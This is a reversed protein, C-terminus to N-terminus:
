AGEVMMTALEELFLAKLEEVFLASLQAGIDAQPAQQGYARADEEQELRSLFAPYAEALAAMKEAYIGSGAESPKYQGMTQFLSRYQRSFEEYGIDAQAKRAQEEADLEAALRRARDLSTEPAAIPPFPLAATPGEVRRREAEQAQAAEIAEPGAQEIVADNQVVVLRGDGHVILHPIMLSGRVLAPVYVGFVMGGWASPAAGPGPVQAARPQGDALSRDRAQIIRPLAHRLSREINTGPEPERDRSRAPTGLPRPYKKRHEEQARLEQHIGQWIEAAERKTERPLDEPAPGVQTREYKRLINRAEEWERATLGISDARHYLAHGTSTDGATFGMQNRKKARDQDALVLQELAAVTWLQIPLLPPTRPEEREQEETVGILKDRLIDWQGPTLGPREGRKVEALERIIPELQPSEGSPGPFTGATADVKGTIWREAQDKPGRRPAEVFRPPTFAPATYVPLSPMPLVAPAPEVVLPAATLVPEFGTRSSGTVVTSIMKQKHDLIELVRNDLPHMAIMRHIVNPGEKTFPVVSGPNLIMRSEAQANNSPNWELDVFIADTARSLTLAVGGAKTSIGVGKLKGAQFAEVTRQSAEPSEGGLILAWGPRKGIAELPTLHSSFVLIPNEEEEFGAVLDILAPIKSAALLARARSMEEFVPLGKALVEASATKIDIGRERLIKATIADLEALADGTIEIPIDKYLMRPADAGWVDKRERRLSVKQMAKAAAPSGQGWETKQIQRGGRATVSTLYGGFLARFNNYNGFAQDFLGFIKLLRELEPPSNMLPTGTMGWIQGGNARAAWNLAELSQSMAAKKNKAKQIEDSIVVVGPPAPIRAEQKFFAEEKMPKAYLADWKPINEYNTIIVDGPKPWAFGEKSAWASGSIFTVGCATIPRKKRAEASPVTVFIRGCYEPRWKEFERAWGLKARAPVIVIVPAGDPLAMLAQITKGLRQEDLLLTSQHSMLWEVGQRQYPLLAQGRSAMETDKRAMHERIRAIKAADQRAAEDAKAQEAAAAQSLREQAQGMFRAFDQSQQVDFGAANLKEVLRPIRDIAIYTGFPPGKDRTAGGENSAALFRDFIPRELYAPRKVQAYMPDFPELIIVPRRAQAPAPAGQQREFHGVVAEKFGPAERPKFGWTYLAQAMQTHKEIPFINQKTERNWWGGGEKVAKRYHDFNSVWGKVELAGFGALNGADIGRMLIYTEERPNEEPNGTLLIPNKLAWKEPPVLVEGRPMFVAEEAGEFPSKDDVFYFNAPGKLCNYSVRRYGSPRRPPGVSVLTGELYAHVNRVQEDHCRKYGAKNVVPVVDRLVLGHDHGLVKGKHQVSYCGILLHKYVRVRQGILGKHDHRKPTCDLPRPNEAEGPLGWLLLQGGGEEDPEPITIAPVPAQDAAIPLRRPPKWGEVKSLKRVEDRVSRISMDKRFTHGIKDEVRVYEDLLEPNNAAAILLDRKNAFVCFVCSLRSMGLDYAPHHRTGAQRIRAWVDDDTWNFIPLWRDVHQNKTSIEGETFQDKKAREPSEQARIGLASLIRVPPRVGAAAGEKSLRTFLKHVQSTKQDSTCYRAKSDPFMGRAEIQCLLDGKERSVVVFRLGYKAAQEEALERTGEWEVRGLDAHVVVLRDRVGAKDALEVVYDLMAQSDKGASSNIAIYAYSALPPIIGAEPNQFGEPMLRLPNSRIGGAALSRRAAEELFSRTLDPWAAPTVISLEGPPASAPATTITM